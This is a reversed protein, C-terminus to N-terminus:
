GLAADVIKFVCVRNGRRRVANPYVEFFLNEDLQERQDDAAATLLADAQHTLIRYNGAAHQVLTEKLGPTMLQANGAADLLHDLFRLLTGPDAPELVLRYRIRSGLPMLEESRFMDCLRQDGCLVTGLIARSDFDTSALLRLENLVPPQMEQAEDILLVPRMRTNSLHELWRSRLANFGGWRNHPVLRVGFIDGLERYFDGLRSSSRTLVGVALDPRKGLRDALLRMAASKGAGPQGTILAFGGEGALRDEVRACFRLVSEDAFLAEVPLQPSFPNHRLRYFTLTQRNM